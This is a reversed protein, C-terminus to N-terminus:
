RRVPSLNLYSVLSTSCKSCVKYPASVQVSPFTSLFYRSLNPFSTSRFTSILQVSRTLFSSINSLTLSFFFIRYVVSLPFALHIPKRLFQRRFCMISPFMATCSPPSCIPCGQYMFNGSRWSAGHTTKLAKKKGTCSGTVRLWYAM